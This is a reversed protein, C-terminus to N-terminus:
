KIQFSSLSNLHTGKMARSLRKNLNDEYGPPPTTLLKAPYDEQPCGLVECNYSRLSWSAEALCSELEFKMFTKIMEERARKARLYEQEYVTTM